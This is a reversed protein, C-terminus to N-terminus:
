NSCTTSLPTMEETKEPEAMTKPTVVEIKELNPKGGTIKSRMFAVMALCILVVGYFACRLIFINGQGEETELVHRHEAQELRVLSRHSAADIPDFSPAAAATGKEGRPRAGATAEVRLPGRGQRANSFEVEGTEQDDRQRLRGHPRVCPACVCFVATCLFVRTGAPVTFVTFTFWTQNKALYEFM